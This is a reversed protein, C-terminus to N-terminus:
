RLALKASAPQAQEILIAATEAPMDIM